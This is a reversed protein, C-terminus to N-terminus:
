QYTSSTPEDMLVWHFTNRPTNHALTLVLSLRISCTVRGVEQGHSLFFIRPTQLLL